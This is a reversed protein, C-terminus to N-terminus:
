AVESLYEASGPGDDDDDGAGNEEDIRAILAARLELLVEAVGGPAGHFIPAEGPLLAAFRGAVAEEGEGAMQSSVGRAPACGLADDACPVRRRLCAARPRDAPSGPRTARRPPPRRRARKIALELQQLLRPATTELLEDGEDGAEAVAAAAAEDAPTLAEGLMELRAARRPEALLM